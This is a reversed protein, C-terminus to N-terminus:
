IYGRRERDWSGSILDTRGRKLEDKQVRMSPTRPFERDHFEIYRPVKYAALRAACHAIIEDPTITDPTEGSVPLIYAKVEEGRIEDPVALVAADLIKPHMRLVEEVEAAAVTEGSRRIMDKNRGVFTLFGREDARAVDGTHYWGGRMAEATVEPKNLYGRFM